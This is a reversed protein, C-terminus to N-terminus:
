RCESRHERSPSVSRRERINSKPPEIYPLLTGDDIQPRIDPCIWPYASLVLADPKELVVYASGVWTREKSGTVKIGACDPIDVPENLLVEVCPKRGGFPRNVMPYIYFVYLLFAPAVFILAPMAVRLWLFRDWNTLRSFWAALFFLIGALVSLIVIALSISWPAPPAWYLMALGGLWVIWALVAGLRLAWLVLQHQPDEPRRMPDWAFSSVVLGSGIAGVGVWGICIAFMSSTPTHCPLWYLSAAWLWLLLLSFGLFMTSYPLSLLVHLRPSSPLRLGMRRLWEIFPPLTGAFLFFGFATSAALFGLEFFGIALYDAKALEVPALGYSGLDLSVSLFGLVYSVGVALAVFQSAQTLFQTVRDM